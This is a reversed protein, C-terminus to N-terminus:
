IEFKFRWSKWFKRGWLKSFYNRLEGKVRYDVVVM